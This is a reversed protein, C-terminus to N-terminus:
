ATVTKDSNHLPFIDFKSPDVAEALYDDLFPLQPKGPYGAYEPTICIHEAICWTGRFSQSPLQSLHESLTPSNNFYNVILKRLQEARANTNLLVFLEQFGTIQADDGPSMIRMAINSPILKMIDSNQIFNLRDCYLDFRAIDSDHFTDV